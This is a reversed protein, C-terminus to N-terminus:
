ASSLWECLRDGVDRRGLLDIHKAEVEMTDAADFDLHLAPLDNKGLASTVPVLGDGPVGLTPEGSGAVAFCRVDTPLPLPTRHDRTVQFRDRGQWHEELTYGYRLDTIGASRVRALRAIPASYSSIGLLVELWNGGRELPAGHHPTGVFALSRLLRRWGLHETEAARVASRTVLGGMSFGVITLADVAVPWSSVLEELLHALQTGNTSVHLGSNYRIDVRTAGLARSVVAGHDHGDRVWQRDSMSSGHVMVVIHPRPEGHTRAQMEIALPNGTEALYDGVIGNAAAILADRAPGPAGEPALPTLQELAVDITTGVVSTVGTISGYVIRTVLTVPVALPRGLIWPGSAITRHMDRVVNTVERTGHVALRSAGRLDNLLNRDDDDSM